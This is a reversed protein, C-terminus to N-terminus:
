EKRRKNEHTETKSGDKEGTAEKEGVVISDLETRESQKAKTQVKEIGKSQKISQKTKRKNNREKSRGQIESREKERGKQKSNRTEYQKGQKSRLKTM